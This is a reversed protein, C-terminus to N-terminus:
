IIIGYIKAPVLSGNNVTPAGNEDFIRCETFSMTNNNPHYRTQRVFLNWGGWGFGACGILSASTQIGSEAKNIVCSGDNTVVFFANYKEGDISVSKAGFSATPTPNTWLLDMQMGGSGGSGGITELNVGM